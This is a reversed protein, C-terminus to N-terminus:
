VGSEDADTKRGDHGAISKAPQETDGGKALAMSRRDSAHNVATGGPELESFEVDLAIEIAAPWSRRPM